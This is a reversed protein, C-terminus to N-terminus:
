QEQCACPGDDEAEVQNIRQPALKVHVAREAISRMRDIGQMENQRM